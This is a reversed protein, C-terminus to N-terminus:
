GRQPRPPSAKKEPLGLGNWHAVQILRELVTTMDTGAQIALRELKQRAEPSLRITMSVRPTPNGPKRPM